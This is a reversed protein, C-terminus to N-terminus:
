TRVMLQILFYFILIIRHLLNLLFLYMKQLLMKMYQMTVIFFKKQIGEIKSAKDIVEQCNHGVILLEIDGIQKAANVTHLTAPLLEQNNHDAIALVKM